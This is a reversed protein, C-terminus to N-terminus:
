ENRGWLFMYKKFKYKNIIKKGQATTDLFLNLLFIALGVNFLLLVSIYGLSKDIINLLTFTMFGSGMIISFKNPKDLGSFYM